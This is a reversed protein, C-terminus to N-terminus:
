LLTQSNRRQRRNMAMLFFGTALLGIPAPEPVSASLDAASATKVLYSGMYNSSYDEPSQRTTNVMFDNRTTSYTPNDSMIYGTIYVAYGSTSDAYFKDALIGEAAAYTQGSTCNGPYQECYTQGTEIVAGSNMTDGFLSIVDRVSQFDNFYYTQNLGTINTSEGTITTLMSGFDAASAYQWDTGVGLSGDSIGATVYNYSKGQTKTLKLWDLKNVTDTFYDGHDIVHLLTAQSVTSILAMGAGLLSVVLKNKYNM